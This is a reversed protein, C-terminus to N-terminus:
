CNKHHITALLYMLISENIRTFKLVNMAYLDRTALANNSDKRSKNNRKKDHKKMNKRDGFM